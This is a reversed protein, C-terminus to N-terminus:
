DFDSHLSNQVIYRRCDTWANIPIQDSQSDQNKYSQTEM